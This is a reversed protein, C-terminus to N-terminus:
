VGLLVEGLSPHLFSRILHNQDTVRIRSWNTTFDNHVVDEDGDESKYDMWANLRLSSYAMLTAREKELITM